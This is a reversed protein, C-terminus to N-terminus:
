VMEGPFDVVTYLPDVFRRPNIKMTGSPFGWFMAKYNSSDVSYHKFDARNLVRRPFTVRLRWIFDNRTVYSYCRLLKSLKYKNKNRRRRKM